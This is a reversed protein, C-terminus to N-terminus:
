KTSLIFKDKQYPCIFNVVYNTRVQPLLSWIARGETSKRFGRQRTSIQASNKISYVSIYFCLQQM